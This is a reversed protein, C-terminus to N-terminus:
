KQGAHWPSSGYRWSFGAGLVLDPGTRGLAGGVRADLQADPGLRLTLGGNLVDAPGSGPADPRLTYVEVYAGLRETAELGLAGTAVTRGFREGDSVPRGHRLNAGLSLRGGLEWGLAVGAEPEAGDPSVAEAGVPLSTGALVAVAPVAARAGPGPRLLTAKAGLAPNSLGADSGAPRDLVTYSGPAVRLELPPALGVRVLVEGVAHTDTGGGRSLTYGSEVQFRGPAVSATSETFDPRDAVLPEAERAAPADPPAEQAPAPAPLLAAALLALAATRRVAPM